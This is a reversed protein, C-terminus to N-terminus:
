TQSVLLCTLVLDTWEVVSQVVRAYAPSVGVADSTPLRLVSLFASPLVHMGDPEHLLM